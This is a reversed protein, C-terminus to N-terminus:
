SGEKRCATPLRISTACPTANDFTVHFFTIFTHNLILILSQLKTQKKAYNEIWKRRRLMLKKFRNIRCRQQIKRRKLRVSREKELKIRRSNACKIVQSMYMFFFILLQSCGRECNGLLLGCTTWTDCNLIIRSGSM